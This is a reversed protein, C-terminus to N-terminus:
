VRLNHPLCLVLPEVATCARLQTPNDSLAGSTFTHSRKVDGFVEVDHQQRSSRVCMYRIGGLAGGGGRGQAQSRM